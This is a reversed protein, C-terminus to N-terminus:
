GKEESDVDSMSLADEGRQGAIFHDYPVEDPVVFKKQDSDYHTNTRNEVICQGELDMPLTFKFVIAKKEMFLRVLYIDPSKPNEQYM